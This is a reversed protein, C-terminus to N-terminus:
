KAIPELRIADVGARLPGENDASALRLRVTQGQWQSLDFTIETPQKRSPDGPRTQFIKALLDNKALSAVPASPAVLDIRYQQHEGITAHDLAELDVFAGGDNVYFVTLRLMYRGDLTFDRYIIRRGPGNMDTVAAFKGQPPNPVDFPVNPDSFAPEPATKGNTYAFWGGAGRRDSKWRALTGSEFDDSAQPAPVAPAAETAGATPSATAELEQRLNQIAGLVENRFGRADAPLTKEVKELALLHATQLARDAPVKVDPEVGTGEWNGKTVANIPRGSPVGIMFRDNIRKGAVLHAGGGTTEGVITARKLHKLNYTFEEAGSFTRQSTLVYVDKNTLRKGPVYALTWSPTTQNTPRHYFDNLHVPQPGFLYSTIYAVGAPHGGGNQRMDFIVADCGALFTMAATTTEGAIEPPMFGRLDLYGVNGTLRELRAFGFNQRAAFAHQRERRAQEDAPPQDTPPGSSPEPPLLQPSYNVGLHKDKSVARLHETLAQALQRGSVISDYEGRKQRARIAQEM